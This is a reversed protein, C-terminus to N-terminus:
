LAADGNECWEHWMARYAAEIDRTLGAEDRLASATIRARMSARLADMRSLDQALAIAIRAYESEDRGALEGLGITELLAIGSRGASTRGTLSVLPLGMWLSECSTTTGNYPFPDLAIDVDGLLSWFEDAPLKGHILIRDAAVGQAAFREALLRRAAGEAVGSLTLTAGPIEALIRSWTKVTADSLKAINNASIFRVHCNRHAPTESTVPPMAPDPRYCWLSRPLRWLRESHWAEAGPPDTVATVLRYDIAGLGTTAPYGLYSVQVPAPKRAFVALRNGTTHGALDVLIDIGDARIREALQEDDLAHCPLWHDMGAEIRATFEDNLECNYYGCTEVQGKDHHALLPEVFAAVSHRRFDPSLYGVKLRRWPDHDNRHVQRAATLPTKIQEGWDRHAEFLEAPSLPLYNLAFLYLDHALALDPRRAIAQKLLPLARAPDGRRILAQGLTMQALGRGPDIAVTRELCRVAEDVEDHTLLASGLNYNAEYAGPDIRAAKRYCDLAERGEGIGDLAMGLTNFARGHRPNRAIVQRLCAIAEGLRGAQNYLQGLHYGADPHDPAIALVQRFLAEAQALNGARHLTMAQQM